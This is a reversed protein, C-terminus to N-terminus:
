KRRGWRVQIAGTKHTEVRSAYSSNVYGMNTLHVYVIHGPVITPVTYEGDVYTRTYAGECFIGVPGTGDEVDVECISRVHVAGTDDLKIEPGPTCEVPQNCAFIKGFFLIEMVATCTILQKKFTGVDTLTM